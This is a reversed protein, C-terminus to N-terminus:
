DRLSTLQGWKQKEQWKDKSSLYFLMGFGFIVVLGTSIEIIWLTTESFEFRIFEIGPAFRAELELGEYPEILLHHDRSIRHDTEDYWGMFRYGPKSEAEVLLSLAQYAKIDFLGSSEVHDHIVVNGQETDHEIKVNFTEGYNLFQKTYNMFYDPRELAFTRMRNVYAMWQGYSTPYGFRDIHEQMEPAYLATMDDIVRTTSEPSLTSELLTELRYVYKSRFEPNELLVTFLRGTKWSDGIIREYSNIDPKYGGWSIGFGADVDYIMWRWKGDHGESANPNYRVNKKWYLINNQPWDKNAFYLQAINYDIFNDIDMQKEIHRYHSMVKMDKNVAYSYMSLYHTAGIQSGDEVVGHGALITSQERPVGYLTELYWTDFRDRINRIGFYEGNMFLIVPTSYQIDLNLPELIMHAAAEGFFTYEYAQGGARLIIRKFESLDRNEFFPYDFSSQEDYDSRAYLRYSKVPYKRSLGGHVRLGAEQHILLLGQTSFMEVTVPREWDIGSEFYNGTRNSAAPDISSDYNIGAINIGKEYGFLNDVDTSLSIIPFTYKTDMDPSVFYTHTIVESQNGQDDLAVAKVVTGAFITGSPETWKDASSRIYSIPQTPIDWPDNIVQIMQGEPISKETIMIPALYRQTNITPTSGDLTYYVTTNPQIELELEFSSEYFGGAHSFLPNLAPDIGSDDPSLNINGLNCASLMIFLSIYLIIILSKRM